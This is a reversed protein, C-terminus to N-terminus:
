FYVRVSLQILKSQNVANIMQNTYSLLTLHISKLTDISTQLYSELTNKSRFTSFM